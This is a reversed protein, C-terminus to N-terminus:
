IVGDIRMRVITSQFVARAENVWSIATAPAIVGAPRYRLTEKWGYVPDYLTHGLTAGPVYRATRAEPLAALQLARRSLTDLDHGWYPPGGAVLVLSKLACEVVYGALYAGGDPRGVNLLAAADDLHKGAAEPHDDGNAQAIKSM